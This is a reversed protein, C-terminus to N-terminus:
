ECHKAEIAALLSQRVGQVGSGDCLPLHHAATLYLESRKAKGECGCIRAIRGQKGVGRFGTTVSFSRGGLFSEAAVGMQTM